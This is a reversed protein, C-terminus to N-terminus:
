ARIVRVEDDAGGWRAIQYRGAREGEGEYNHFVSSGTPLVEKVEEVAAEYRRIAEQHRNTVEELEGAYQARRENYQALEEIDHFAVRQTAPPEGHADRFMEEEARTDQVQHQADILEDLLNSIHQVTDQEREGHEEHEQEEETM